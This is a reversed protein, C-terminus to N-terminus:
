TRTAWACPARDTRAATSSEPRNPNLSEIFRPLDDYKPGYGVIQIRWDNLFRRVDAPTFSGTRMLAYHRYPTGRFSQSALALLRAFDPDQLGDFSCGIFVLTRQLWLAELIKQYAGDAIVDEYDNRGFVVSRPEDFVGHLHLVRSGDRIGVHLGVADQWTATRHIFPNHPQVLLRDYNTTALVPALLDAIPELVSQDPEVGSLGFTESLWAAFEGSPAGLVERIREAAGILNYDAGKWIEEAEGQGLMGRRVAHSIASKLADRWGPLGAAATSVGAGIVPVASEATFLERLEDVFIDARATDEEDADIGREDKTM